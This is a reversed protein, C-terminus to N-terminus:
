TSDHTLGDLVDMALVALSGAIVDEDEIGAVARAAMRCGASDRGAFLQTALAIAQRAVESAMEDSVLRQMGGVIVDIPVARLLRLVDLADKDMLRGADHLRESIKHVKAVFLAAPGAVAVVFSRQDDRDLATILCEESDVLVGEIGKARRAVRRGHGALHAGRRGPGALAEPVLLDVQVGARTIWKGPDAQLEFGRSELLAQIKPEKALFQPGIALDADSTFEAVAMHTDGTHMYVAQAGVVVVSSLHPSLADLGDLLARRAAVYVPDREGPM